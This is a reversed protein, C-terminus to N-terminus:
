DDDTSAAPPPWVASMRAIPLVFGIEAIQGSPLTQVSTVIGIVRGSSDIVPGGSNGPYIAANVQLFAGVNRSAVGGFVSATITDGQQPINKGFPFGMLRLETGPAPTELDAGVNKLHGMGEFPEIKLLALDNENEEAVRVITAPHRTSTSSFVVSLRVEPELKLRRLSAVDDGSPPTVVHANTLIWGDSSICFGSGGGEEEVLKGKGDLNITSEGTDAEVMRLLEHSDTDRFLIKKEIFVVAKLTKELVARREAEVEELSIPKMRELKESTSTLQVQLNVLEATSTRETAQLSQIQSLLGARETELVRREEELAAQQTAVDNGTKEIRAALQQNLDHLSAVQSRREKDLAFFGFLAAAAVTILLAALTFLGRRQRKLTHAVLEREKPLGLAHGLRNVSATGLEAGPNKPPDPAVSITQGLPSDSVVVFRPGVKRGLQLVDGAQLTAREVEEGNVLTGNKSGLDEVTIEGGSLSLRAHHSSVHPFDEAILALSNSEARGLSLGEPPIEVM